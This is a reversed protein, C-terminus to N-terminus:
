LIDGLMVPLGLEAWAEGRPGRAEGSTEELVAKQAQGRGSGLRARQTEGPGEGEPPLWSWDAGTGWGPLVRTEVPARM